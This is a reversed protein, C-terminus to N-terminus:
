LVDGPSQNWKQQMNNLADQVAKHKLFENLDGKKAANAEKNAFGSARIFVRELFSDKQEQVLERFRESFENQLDESWKNEENLNKLAKSIADVYLLYNEPEIAEWMYLTLTYNTASSSAEEIARECERDSRHDRDSVAIVTVKGTRISNLVTGVHEATRIIGKELPAGGAHLVTIEEWIRLAKDKGWYKDAFCKLFMEDLKNEVFLIVRNKMLPVYLMRDTVGIEDFLM